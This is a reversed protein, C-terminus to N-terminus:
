AKLFERDSDGPSAEQIKGARTLFRSIVQCVFTGLGHWPLPLGQCLTTQFPLLEFLMFLLFLDVIVFIFSSEVCMILNNNATSGMTSNYTKGLPSSM